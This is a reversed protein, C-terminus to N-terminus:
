EKIKLKRIRELPGFCGVTEHCVICTNIANNYAQIRKLSDTTSYIQEDAKIFSQAFTQFEPTNFSEKTFKATYIDLYNDPFTGIKQEGALLENKIKQHDSYMTEMLQAQPSLEYMEFKKKDQNQCSFLILFLGSILFIRM